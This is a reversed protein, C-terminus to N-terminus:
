ITVQTDGGNWDTPPDAEIANDIRSQYIDFLAINAGPYQRSRQLLSRAKFFDAERYAALMQRHNDELARFNKSSKLFPNGVLAYVTFPDETHRPAVRDLELFAFHHHNKRHIAEDCIIAPGYYAAQRRLFAAKDVAQGVASYRNSKGHGMPGIICPGEAVGVALHLQVDRLPGSSLESNIQDMGEVLRLAASCAARGHDATELPANFYAYIKGGDAQDVAGGMEVLSKRLSACASAIMTTIEGPRDAFATLDDELLSLECALVTIPRRAGDLIDTPGDDRLKKMTQEPLADKYAGRVKDDVLAAGLSRGGAVSFAGLLLALSAPLPDILLRGLYFAGASAAFVLGVFVGAIVFAQWFSLKQSWIIAAAGFVMVMLAEAYGAWLPRKLMSGTYLQEAILAHAAARSMDGRPTAVAGDITKDLGILLTRGTLAGGLSGYATNSRPSADRLADGSEQAQLLRWASTKPTAARRTWYIRLRSLRDVSLTNGNVAITKLTRGQPTVGTMDQVVGIPAGAAAIRAAELGSLPTPAGDVSWLLPPARLIGDSDVPLASVTLQASALAADKVPYRAEASPLGVFGDQAPSFAAYPALAIDSRALEAREAFRAPRGPDIAVAGRLLGLAGGLAEDTEPLLSLQQALAADRAGGLWFAGITEPSLPDPADIPEVYVAGNAGAAAGAEVIQAVISRPWPWPGIKTLSEQDIEVVHFPTAAPTPAPVLRQYVDFVRERAGGHRAGANTLTSIALVALILTIFLLPLASLWQFRQSFQLKSM